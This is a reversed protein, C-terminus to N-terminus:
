GYSVQCAPSGPQAAVPRSWAVVESLRLLPYSGPQIYPCGDEIMKRVTPPSLGLAEAVKPVTLWPEDPPRKALEGVIALLEERVITRLTEDISASSM